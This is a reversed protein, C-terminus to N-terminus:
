LWIPLDDPMAGSLPRVHGPWDEIKVARVTRPVADGQTQQM